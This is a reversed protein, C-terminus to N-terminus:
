RIVSDAGKNIAGCYRRINILIMVGGGGQNMSEWSQEMIEDDKDSLTIMTPRQGSTALLLIITEHKWPDKNNEVGCRDPIAM